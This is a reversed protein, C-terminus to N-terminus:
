AVDQVLGGVTLLALLTELRIAFILRRGRCINNSNCINVLAGALCSKLALESLPVKSKDSVLNFAKVNFAIWIIGVLGFLPLILGFIKSLESSIQTSSPASSSFNPFLSAFNSLLVIFFIVATIVAAIITVIIGYLLYNFIRHDNYDKSFGYM